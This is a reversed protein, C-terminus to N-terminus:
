CSAPSAETTLQTRIRVWMTMLKKLNFTLCGWRWEQVVGTHGRLLFRRIGLNSKIFAFPTEGYHQRKKYREKVTSDQMLEAQRERVEQFEDHSVKRGKKSNENM